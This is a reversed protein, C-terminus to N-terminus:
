ATKYENPELADGPRGHRPGQGRHLAGDIPTTPDAQDSLQRSILDFGRNEQEVSEVQWGRAEEYAIAAEVAIREIEDDRVM